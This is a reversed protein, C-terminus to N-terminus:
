SIQKRGEGTVTYELEGIYTLDAAFLTGAPASHITTESVPIFLHVEAATADALPENLVAQKVPQEDGLGRVFEGIKDGLEEFSFSWETVYRKDKDNSGDTM